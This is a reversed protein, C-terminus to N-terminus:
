VPPGVTPRGVIARNVADALRALTATNDKIADRSATEQAVIIGTQDRVVDRLEKLVSELRVLVFVAVVAAFGANLIATPDIGGM